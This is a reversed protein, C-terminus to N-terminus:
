KRLLLLIYHAASWSFSESELGEGTIPNYNERISKGKGLVGEANSILKNTLKDAELNYNYNRLGKVGFYSQDLWNPGRWYGGNPEFKPHNTSLTQLPVKTNFYKNSLINNKIIEAQEITAANAWLPIWGECGMVKIFNQGDLSTDYFWGSNSDFFQSQIKLKLVEADKKLKKAHFNLNLEVAIKSLFVKEAYLYSNLDVSEQNLSYAGKLNNVIKSSDFRVANDMGSEWKAAILSGDTSGYECLSDKDHDRENYWWSHQNMIKPFLDKIFSQDSDNKYIEWIAWASLPPKTNRYNHNEITTDRYVCDAIFGNENQFDFMAKVQEKALDLNFNALAVSHKWSDWAWFGHFWIYHYSPFLGSHKLEGAPIRWNNQLTLVCKAILDNYSDKKWFNNISQTISKIQNEKENIRKELEGYFDESVYSLHKQEAILNYEPFIFTQSNFLNIFENPELKITELEAKYSSTDPFTINIKDNYFKIFGKADSKESKLSLGNKIESLQLSNQFLTGKWSPSLHILKNSTNKIKTNIFASHPSCFFLNQEILLDDSIFLQELHSNYSKSSIEFKEIKVNLDNSIDYLELKCISESSWIGNEQTMLFPGSFGIFSSQSDPFGYAFWAGQDSFALSSRDTSSDPIGIYNLLNTPSINETKESINNQCNLLSVLITIYLFIKRLLNTSM